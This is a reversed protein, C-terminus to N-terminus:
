NFINKHLHCYKCFLTKVDIEQRIKCKIPGTIENLSKKQIGVSPQSEKLKISSFPIGLLAHM